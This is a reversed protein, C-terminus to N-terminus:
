GWARHGRLSASGREAPHGQCPVAGQPLRQPVTPLERLEPLGVPEVHHLVALVAREEPLGVLGEDVVQVYTCHRRHCGPAGQFLATSCSREQIGLDKEFLDAGARPALQLM